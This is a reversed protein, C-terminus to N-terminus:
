TKLSANHKQLLFTCKIHKAYQLKLISLLCQKKFQLLVLYITLSMIPVFYFSCSYSSDQWEDWPHQESAETM